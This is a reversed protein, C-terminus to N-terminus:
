ENARFIQTDPHFAYWAFWYAQVSPIENGSKDLIHASEAAKSWVVTLTQGAFEDTFTAEGHKKLEALPYARHNNSLTVGLVLDKNRFERNKDQVEFMLRSSREYDLYPSERYNRRFGTDASLVLTDPYLTRWHEWSTHRSPLLGLTAGKLPGTIAQSMIQSWLSATQRDYLLVDSNFLLGSVGFTCNIEDHHVDFVMGTGCLPCYTVLVNSGTFEDNVVEHWNLIRIPYAKAIGNHYVGIIRDNDKLFTADNAGTFKPSDISPIGDRGPGGSQIHAADILSDSLDFGNMTQGHCALTTLLLFSFAIPRRM